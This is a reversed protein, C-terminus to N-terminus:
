TSGYGANRFYSTCETASFCALLTGTRKWVADITREEARRPLAQLSGARQRAANKQLQDGRAEPLAV